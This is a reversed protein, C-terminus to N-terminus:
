PSILLAALAARAAPDDRIVVSASLRPPLTMAGRAFFGAAFAVIAVVTILVALMARGM